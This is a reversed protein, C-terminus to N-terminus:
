PCPLGCENYSDERNCLGALCRYKSCVVEYFGGNNLDCTSRTSVGCTQGTADRTCKATEIAAKTTLCSGLDNCRNEAVSRTHSGTGSCVDNAPPACASWAGVVPAACVRGAPFFGDAPCNATGDCTEGVDCANVAPRCMKAAGLNSCVGNAPAGAAVSCAQCSGNCASDCCMGGACFGNSCELNGACSSSNPKKASCYTGSCYTSAPCGSTCLIPCEAIVGNCVTAGCSPNGQENAAAPLCRGANDAGNCRDCSGLCAAGCCVGDACFGSACETGMTCSQGLARAPICQAARCYLGPACQQIANCTSPCRQGTGDCVFPACGADSTGLAKPVCQGRTNPESCTACSDACATDCCVGQACHGSLCQTDAACVAGSVLLDVCAASECKTGTGCGVCQAGRRGCAALDNGLRCKSGECCGDCTREDCDSVAADFAECEARCVNNACCSFGSPCRGDAECAFFSLSKSDVCGFVLTLAALAFSFRHPTPL